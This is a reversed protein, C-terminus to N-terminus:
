SCRWGTPACIWWVVTMSFGNWRQLNRGAPRPRWVSLSRLMAGNKVGVRILVRAPRDLTYAIDGTSSLTASHGLHGRGGTRSCPDDVVRGGESVLVARVCYAEDPVPQGTDDKGDWKLQHDGPATPGSVVRRVLDGDSTLVELALDGSRGTRVTYTVHAGRASALEGESMRQLSVQSWALLPLGLLAAGMVRFANMVLVEVCSLVELRACGAHDRRRGGVTPGPDCGGPGVSCFSGRRRLTCATRGSLPGDTLRRIGGGDFGVQWLQHTGSANSSFVVRRGDTVPGQSLANLLTLQRAKGALLDRGWIEVLLEECGDSCGVSAYVLWRRQFVFPDHQAGPQRAIRAPEPASGFRLIETELSKGDAMEVAYIERGDVAMCPQTYSRKADARALVTEQASGAAVLRLTGDAAAYVLKSGDPVVCAQRPEQQTPVRIVRRSTDVRYLGWAGAADQAVFSM